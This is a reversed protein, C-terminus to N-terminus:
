QRPHRLRAQELGEREPARLRRRAMPSSGGDKASGDTAAADETGNGELGVVGGGCAGLALVAPAPLLSLSLVHRFVRRLDNSRM